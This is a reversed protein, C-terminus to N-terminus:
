LLQNLATFIAASATAIVALFKLFGTISQALNGKKVLYEFISLIFDVIAAFSLVLFFSTVIMALVLWFGTWHTYALNMLWASLAGLLVGMGGNTWRLNATTKKQLETMLGAIGFLICAAAIYSTVFGFANTVWYSYALGLLILAIGISEGSISTSKEQAKAM